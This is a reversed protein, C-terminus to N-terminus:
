TSLPGRLRELGDLLLKKATSPSVNIEEGATQVAEGGFYVREVMHRQKKPLGDVLTRIRDSYFPDPPSEYLDMDAVRAFRM